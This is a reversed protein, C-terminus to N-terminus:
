SGLKEGRGVGSYVFGQRILQEADLMNKADIIVPKKMISKISDFDLGKFEPWDTVIVLADAGRAVM